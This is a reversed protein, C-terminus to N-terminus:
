ASTRMRIWSCVLRMRPTSVPGSCCFRATWSWMGRVRPNRVDADTASSGISVSAASVISMDAGPNHSWLNSEAMSLDGTVSTTAAIHDARVVGEFDSLWRSGSGLYDAFTVFDVNLLAESISSDPNTGTLQFQGTSTTKLEFSEVSGELLLQATAGQLKVDASGGAKQVLVQEAPTMTIDGSVSRIASAVADVRLNGAEITGAGIVRILDGVSFTHSVGMWVDSHLKVQGGTGPTIQVHESEGSTLHLGREANLSAATVDGLGFDARAATLAGSM